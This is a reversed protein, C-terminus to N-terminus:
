PALKAALAEGIRAAGEPSPHVADFDYAEPTTDPDIIDGLEVVEVGSRGAAMARYRANLADLTARCRDFGYWAEDPFHYYTLLLVEAGDARLRDVLAPMAGDVGAADSLADMVADCDGCDCQNNLDNAGGDVVVARWDGEPVQEPISVLLETGSVAESTVAAGRALAAHDAVSQCREANWALVSDGVMLVDTASPLAGVEDCLDTVCGGLLAPLLLRM